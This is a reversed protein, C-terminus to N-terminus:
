QPDLGEPRVRVLLFGTHGKSFAAERFGLISEGKKAHALVEQNRIALSADVGYEERFRAMNENAWIEDPDRSPVDPTRSSM